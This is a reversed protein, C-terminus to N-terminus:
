LPSIHSVFLSRNINKAIQMGVIFEELDNGPQRFLAHSFFFDQALDGVHRLLLVFFPLAPLTGAGHIVTAHFMIGEQVLDEAQIGKDVEQLPVQARATGLEFGLHEGHHAFHQMTFLHALDIRCVLFGARDGRAAGFADVIGHEDIALPAARHLADGCRFHDSGHGDVGGMHFGSVVQPHLHHADRDICVELGVDLGHAEPDGGVRDGKQTGGTRIGVAHDVRDALKGVQRQFVLNPQVDIAAQSPEDQGPDFLQSIVNRHKVETEGPDGGDRAVRM